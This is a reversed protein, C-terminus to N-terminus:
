ANRKVNMIENPHADRRDAVLNEASPIIPDRLVRYRAPSQLRGFKEGLQDNPLFPQMSFMSTVSACMLIAIEGHTSPRRSM